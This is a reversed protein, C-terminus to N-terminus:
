LLNPLLMMINGSAGWLAALIMPVGILWSQAAGWRARAWVVIAAVVLLLQVWLVLKILGSTDSAMAKEVAPVASLRGDPAAVPKGTLTADVFLPHASSFGLGTSTELLLRSAGDPLATPLPDGAHRVRDVTYVFTGQGTTISLRQGTKFHGIEGFPGGYTISRGFLISVGPQGPLPTDRRHGPGNRLDSPATGEVIVLKGLATGPAEILAIPTGPKIVGGIPTTAGSLGERLKSYLVSNNRNEQLGSLVVAYCLLWAALASVALMTWVTTLMPSSLPPAPKDTLILRKVRALDWRQRNEQPSPFFTLLQNTM